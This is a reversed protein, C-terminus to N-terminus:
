RSPRVNNQNLEEYIFIMIDGGDVSIAPLGEASARAEIGEANPWYRHIALYARDVRAFARAELLMQRPSADYYSVAEFYRYLEGGTPIAYWLRSGLSTDAYHAFGLTEVAAASMMQNSLVVYTHDANLRELERVADVDAQSVSPAPVISKPNLQPYSFYWALPIVVAALAALAYRRGASWGRMREVLFGAGVLASVAYVANLNRLAFELQEYNIIDRFEFATSIFWLSAITGILFVVFTLAADDRGRRLRFAAAALAILAVLPPAYQRFLYFWEWVDPVPSYNQVYPDKFLGFFLDARMPMDWLHLVGGGGGVYSALLLPVLVAFAIAAVIAVAFRGLRSGKALQLAFLTAVYLAAPVGILPHALLAVAALLVRLVAVRPERSPALLVICLLAWLALNYPVTFTLASFPVVLMLLAPLASGRAIKATWPLTVACLLPVLLLDFVRTPLGTLQALAAVVAYQGAYLFRVPEIHGTAALAAEAARHLFPDFGFGVAYVILSVSLLAVLTAITAPLGSRDFALQCCSFVACGALVFLVPSLVTWPSALAIATRAFVCALLIAIVSVAAAALYVRRQPHNEFPVAPADDRWGRFMLWVAGASLCLAVASFVPTLGFLLFFGTAFCAFACFWSLGIVFGRDARTM